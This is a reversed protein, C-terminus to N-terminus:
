GTISLRLLTIMEEPEYEAIEKLEDTNLSLRSGRVGLAAVIADQDCNREVVPVLDRESRPVKCDTYLDQLKKTGLMGKPRMRDGPKWSRVTLYCPIESSRFFYISAEGDENDTGSNPAVLGALADQAPVLEASVRREGSPLDVVGPVPLSVQWPERHVVVPPAWIRITDGSRRIHFRKGSATPLTQETVPLGNIAALVTEVSEFDVDTLEGRVKEIAQRIGRRQLNGPSAARLVATNLVFEGAGTHITADNLLIAARSEVIDREGESIEALRNLAELVGSNYYTAIQPLLEARIRNRRYDLSSNSSDIRPELGQEACYDGAQARTCSLIPRIIPFQVAPMACLGDTGSGRLINLLVTEARDNATHGLAIRAQGPECCSGAVRLLFRHREDRAALSKSVRRRKAIAPIDIHEIHCPIDLRSCLNSVYLVDAESEAGRIGHEMTAAVIVINLESRLCWLAHLMATSDPGGSVAAVVTQGSALMNHRALASRVTGVFTSQSCVM